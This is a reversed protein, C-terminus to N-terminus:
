VPRERPKPKMLIFVVSSAVAQISFSLPITLAKKETTSAARMKSVTRRSELFDVAATKTHVVRHSFARM